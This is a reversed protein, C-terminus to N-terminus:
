SSGAPRYVRVSASPFTREDVLEMILPHSLDDFVRLGRGIAVPHVIFRYEDVLDARALAQAFAAGGWAVLDKGPQAKLQAVEEALDGRAIQSEPWDARELTRSFVVKPIENM